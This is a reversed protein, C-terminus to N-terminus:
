RTYVFSESVSGRTDGEKESDLDGVNGGFGKSFVEHPLTEILHFIWQKADTTNHASLHEVVEDDFLAWM